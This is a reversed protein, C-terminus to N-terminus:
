ARRQSRLPLAPLDIVESIPSVSDLKSGHAKEIVLDARLQGLQEQFEARLQKRIESLAGGIADQRADDRWARAEFAANIRGDVFRTWDQSRLMEIEAVSPQRPQPGPEPAPEPRQWYEASSDRREVTVNRVRHLTERAEDLIARARDDM